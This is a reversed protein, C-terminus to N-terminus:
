NEIYYSVGSEKNENLWEWKLSLVIKNVKSFTIEAIAKGAKLENDVTICQYLMHLKEDKLHAIIKGYKITGGSYHATVLDGDQKYKFITSTDVKGNKSNQVLSFTKNNFDIKEM